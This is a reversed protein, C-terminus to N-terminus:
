FPASFLRTHFACPDPFSYISIVSTKQFEFSDWAIWKLLYWADDVNRGHFDQYELLIRTENNVDEDFIDLIEWKGVNLLFVTLRKFYRWFLEHEFQPFHFNAM